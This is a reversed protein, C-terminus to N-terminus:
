CSTLSKLSTSVLLSMFLYFYKPKAPHTVPYFQKDYMGSLTLDIVQVWLQPLFYMESLQKESRWM